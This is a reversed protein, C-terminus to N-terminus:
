DGWPYEILFGPGFEGGLVRVEGARFDRASDVCDLLLEGVEGGCSGLCGSGSGLGMSGSMNRSARVFVMRVGQCLALRGGSTACRDAAGEATPTETLLQTRFQHRARSGVSLLVGRTTRQRDTTSLRGSRM